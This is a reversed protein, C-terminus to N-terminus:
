KGALRKTGKRLKDGSGFAVDLVVLTKFDKENHKGCNNKDKCEGSPEKKWM